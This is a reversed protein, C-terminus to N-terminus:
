FHWQKFFHSYIRIDLYSVLLQVIYLINGSSIIQRVIQIFLSFLCHIKDFDFTIQFKIQCYHM